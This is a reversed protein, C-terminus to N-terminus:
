SETAGFKIQNAELRFVSCNLIKHFMQLSPMFNPQSCDACERAGNPVVKPCKHWHGGGGREARGGAVSGEVM